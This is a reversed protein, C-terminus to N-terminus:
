QIGSVGIVTHLERRVCLRGQWTHSVTAFLGFGQRPYQREAIENAAVSFVDEERTLHFKGEAM